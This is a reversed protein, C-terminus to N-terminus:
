LCIRRHLDVTDGRVLEQCSPHDKHQPRRIVVGKDHLGVRVVNVVAQGLVFERVQPFPQFKSGAPLELRLGEVLVQDDVRGAQGVDDRVVQRVHVLATNVADVVIVGPLPKSLFM